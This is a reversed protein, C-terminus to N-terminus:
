AQAQSRYWQRLHHDLMSRSVLFPETGSRTGSAAIHAETDTAENGEIDAHGLAWWLTVHHGARRLALARRHVEWISARTWRWSIQGLYLLAAQSDSVIYAQHWDTRSALHDLAVKLGAM